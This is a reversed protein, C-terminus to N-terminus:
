GECAAPVCACARYRSAATEYAPPSLDPARTGVRDRRAKPSRPASGATSFIASCPVSSKGQTRLSGLLPVVLAILWLGMGPGLWIGIVGTEAAPELLSGRAGRGHGPARLCLLPPGRGRAGRSCTACFYSTYDHQCRLFARRRYRAVDNGSGVGFPRSCLPRKPCSLLQSRVRGGCCRPWASDAPGSFDHGCRRIKWASFLM